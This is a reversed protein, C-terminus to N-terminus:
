RVDVVEQELQRAEAVLNEIKKAAMIQAEHNTRGGDGMADMLFYNKMRTVFASRRNIEMMSLRRAPSMRPMM